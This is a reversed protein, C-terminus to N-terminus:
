NGALAARGADAAVSASLTILGDIEGRIQSMMADRSRNMKILPLIAPFTKM